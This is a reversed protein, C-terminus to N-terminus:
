IDYIRLATKVSSTHSRIFKVGTPKIDSGGMEREREGRKSESM